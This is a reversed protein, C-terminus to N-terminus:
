QGKIGGNLALFVDSGCYKANQVSPVPENSHSFYMNKDNLGFHLLQKNAENQQKSCNKNWICKCFVFTNLVYYFRGFLGHNCKSGISM